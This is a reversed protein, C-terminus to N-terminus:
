APCTAPPVSRSPSSTTTSGAPERVRIVAISSSSRRSSLAVGGSETATPIASSRSTPRPSRIVPTASWGGTPRSTSAVSHQIAGVGSRAASRKVSLCVVRVM